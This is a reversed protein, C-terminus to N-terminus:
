RPIYDSSATKAKQLRTSLSHDGGQLFAALAKDSQLVHNTIWNGLFAISKLLLIQNSGESRFEMQLEAVSDLFERHQKRHEEYDPYHSAIQLKEEATFHRFIYNELFAMADSVKKSCDSGQAAEVLSELRRFLEQHQRDIAENGTFLTQDWNFNM